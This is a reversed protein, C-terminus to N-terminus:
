RWQTNMELIQPTNQIGAVDVLRKQPALSQFSRPTQAFRRFGNNIAWDRTRQSGDLVQVEVILADRQTLLEKQKKNSLLLESRIPYTFYRMTILASVLALWILLYRIARKRWTVPSLDAMKLRLDFKMM